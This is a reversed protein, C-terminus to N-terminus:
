CCQLPQVKKSSPSEDESSEANMGGIKKYLITLKVNIDKKNQLM